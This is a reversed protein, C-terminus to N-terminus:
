PSLKGVITFVGTLIIFLVIASILLLPFLYTHGPAFIEGIVAVFNLGFILIIPIIMFNLNKIAIGESGTFFGKDGFMGSRLSKQMDYIKKGFSQTTKLSSLSVQDGTKKDKFLEALLEAARPDKLNADAAHQYLIGSPKGKEDATISIYGNVALDLLLPAVLNKDNWFVECESLTVFDPAVFQPIIPPHNAKNKNYSIILFKRGFFIFVPAAFVLSFVVVVWPQLPAIGHAENESQYIHAPMAFTEPKFGINFVLSRRANTTTSGTFIFEKSGDPLSSSTWSCENENQNNWCAVRGDLESVLAADVVVRASVGLFAQEFADGNVMWHFEDGDQTKDTLIQNPRVVDRATYNIHFTHEGHLYNNRDGVRILLADPDFNHYVYPGGGSASIFTLGFSWSRGDGIKMRAPIVREIGHSTVGSTAYVDVITEKIDLHSTHTGPIKKLTYEAHFSKFADLSQQANVNSSSFILFSTIIAFALALFGFIKKM